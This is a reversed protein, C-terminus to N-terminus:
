WIFIGLLPKKQNSDRLQKKTKKVMEMTITYYQNNNNTVSVSQTEVEFLVMDSVPVM